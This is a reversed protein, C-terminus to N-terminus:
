GVEWGVRDAIDASAFTLDTAMQGQDSRDPIRTFSGDNLMIFNSNNIQGTLTPSSYELGKEWSSDRVSFDGM